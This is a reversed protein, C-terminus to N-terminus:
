GRVGAQETVHERAGPGAGRLPFVASRKWNATLAARAPPSTKRKAWRSRSSSEGGASGSPKEALGSSRARTEMLRAEGGGRWCRNRRGAGQVGARRVGLLGRLGGVAARGAGGRRAPPGRLYQSLSESSRRHHALTWRRGASRRGVASTTSSRPPSMPLRARSAPEADRPPITQRRRLHPATGSRRRTPTPPPRQKQTNERPTVGCGSSARAGRGAAACRPPGCPSPACTRESGRAAPPRRTACGGGGAPLLRTPRLAAPNRRRAAAARGERAECERAFSASIRGAARPAPAPAPGPECAPQPTSTESWAARSASVGCARRGEAGSGAGFARRRARVASVGGTDGAGKDGGRGGRRGACGLM